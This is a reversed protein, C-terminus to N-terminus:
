IGISRGSVGDGNNCLKGLEQLLQFALEVRLRQLLELRGVKRSSTDRYWVDGDLIELTDEGVFLGM